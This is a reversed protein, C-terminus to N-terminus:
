PHSSLFFEYLCKLSRFSESVCLHSNGTVNVNVDFVLVVGCDFLVYEIALFGTHQSYTYPLSCM